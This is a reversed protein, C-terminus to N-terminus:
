EKESSSNEDELLNRSLKVLATLVLLTALGGIVLSPNLHEM